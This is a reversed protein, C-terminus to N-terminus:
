RRAIAISDHPQLVDRKVDHWASAINTRRRTVEKISNWFNTSSHTDYDEKGYPLTQIHWIKIQASLRYARSVRHRCTNCSVRMIGKWDHLCQLVAAGPASRSHPRPQGGGGGRSNTSYCFLCHLTVLFHGKFGGKFNTFYLFFINL